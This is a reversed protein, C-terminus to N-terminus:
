KPVMEKMVTMTQENITDIMFGLIMIFAPITIMMVVLGLIIKLPLGVMFINMQPMTRSLIGLAVDCVLVAAIVPASIKFGIIFMYGMLKILQPIMNNNLVATGIPLLNYSNVLAEILMHHGNITLFIVMALTYYFNATIPVQINSVPDIVSVIGFGIQTDILQGALYIASFILFSVYGLIVGIMFERLAVITFEYMGNLNVDAPISVVNVLIVAVMLSFGIKFITPLSRRGFLPSIIFLSSIRILIFIFVEIKTLFSGVLLEM